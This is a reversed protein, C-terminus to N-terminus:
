INNFVPFSRFTLVGNSLMAAFVVVLFLQQVLYITMVDWNKKRLEKTSSYFFVGGISVTFAMLDGLVSPAHELIPAVASSDPASM